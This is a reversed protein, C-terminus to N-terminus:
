PRWRKREFELVDGVRYRTRGPLQVTRLGHHKAYNWLTARSVKWRAMLVGPTLLEETLTDRDSKNM